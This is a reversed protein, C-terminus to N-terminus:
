DTTKKKQSTETHCQQCPVAPRMFAEEKEINQLTESPNTNM